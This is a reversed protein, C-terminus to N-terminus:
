RFRKVNYFEFSNGVMDKVIIKFKGTGKNKPIPMNVLFQVGNPYFGGPQDLSEGRPLLTLTSYVQRIDSFNNDSNTLKKRFDWFFTDGQEFSLEFYLPVQSFVNQNKQDSVILVFKAIDETIKYGPTVWHSTNTKSIALIECRPKINDPLLKFFHEPNLWNGDKDHINLHVHDYHFSTEWPVVRALQVGAKVFYKGLNLGNIVEETLTSRDVHHLEFRNGLNDVVALEFYNSDGDHPWPKWHKIRTGDPNDTYAYHGAELLGSVPAYIWSDRELIMDLGGHYGPQSYPQYQAFNNGMFGKKHPLEFPWTLQHPRYGPKIERTRSNQMRSNENYRNNRTSQSRQSYTQKKQIIFGQRKAEKLSIIPVDAFVSTSFAMLNFLSIFGLFLRIQM